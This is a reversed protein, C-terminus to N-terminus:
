RPNVNGRGAWESEARSGLHTVTPPATVFSTMTLTFVARNTSRRASCHLTTYDRPAAVYVPSPGRPLSRLFCLCTCPPLVSLVRPVTLSFCPGPSLVSLWPLTSTRAFLYVRFLCESSPSRPLPGEVVVKEEGEERGYRLDLKKCLFVGQSRIM